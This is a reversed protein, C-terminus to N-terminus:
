ALMLQVPQLTSVLPFKAPDFMRQVMSRLTNAFAETRFTESYEFWSRRGNYKLRWCFGLHGQQGQQELQGQQEQQEHQGHQRQQEMFYEAEQLM